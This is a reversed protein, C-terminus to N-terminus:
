SNDDITEQELVQPRIGEYLGVSWMEIRLIDESVSDHLILNARPTLESNFRTRLCGPKGKRWYRCRVGPEGMDWDVFGFEVDPHNIDGEAHNPIYAIQMGRRFRYPQRQSTPQPQSTM